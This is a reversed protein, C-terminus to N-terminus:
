LMCPVFALTLRFGCSKTEKAIVTASLDVRGSHQFTFVHVQITTDLLEM